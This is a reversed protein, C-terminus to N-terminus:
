ATQPDRAAEQRRLMKKMPWIVANAEALTRIQSRGGLPGSPSRLWAEFRSRDWGLKTILESIMELEAASVLTLAGARKGKRGETGAAHARTRDSIRRGGARSPARSPVTQPIGLAGQLADILTKAEGVSLGKFSDVTRGLERTAWALRSARDDNVGIERQAYQRWLVQLRKLAPSSIYKPSV